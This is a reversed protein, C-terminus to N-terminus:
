LITSTGGDFLDKALRLAMVDSEHESESAKALVRCYEEAKKKYLADLAPDFSRKEQRGLIAAIVAFSLRIKAENNGVDQQRDVYDYAERVVEEVIRQRQAGREMAADHDFSSM